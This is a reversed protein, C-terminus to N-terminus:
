KLNSRGKGTIYKQDDDSQLYTVLVTDGVSYTIIDLSSPIAYVVGDLMVSYINDGLSAVVKGKRTKDHPSSSIAKNILYRIATFMSNTAQKSTSM